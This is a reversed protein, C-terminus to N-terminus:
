GDANKRAPKRRSNPMFALELCAIDMRKKLAFHSSIGM